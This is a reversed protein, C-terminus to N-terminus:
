KQLQEVAYGARFLEKENHSTAIFQIGVPMNNVVGCPVSIAPVGAINVPVTYIDSLYVQTKDENTSGADFAISPATPGVLVDCDNLANDFDQRILTRIRSAKLYYADYYGSSLVYNGMCIRRKVEDGFYKTRSNFYIERLDNADARIGYKVGDFRALNSAAEASSLVYYTALASEFSSLSVEKIIAGQEKLKDITLMITDKISKELKDSFFEKPVGIRLGKVSKNFNTYDEREHKSSTADLKDYFSLLQLALASDEVTRTLPGIQDLSSAFAVLGYRSVASYTPKLGVVGCYSAPQRISGGTDSGLALSCEFSAVTNASGGSSGGAVKKHDHYNKVRGFASNESGSGMAFEDMNTKGIIIAGADKLAKVVTADYVPVYNELIKSACTTRVCDTSINDKIAIPVGLLPLDTKGSKIKEDADKANKIAEDKCLTIYNNLEANKEITDFSAEVLQLSSIKKTRLLEIVETLSLKNIDKM